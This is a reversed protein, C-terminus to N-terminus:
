PIHRVNKIAKFFLLHSKSILFPTALIVWIDNINADKIKCKSNLVDRLFLNIAMVVESTVTINIEKTTVAVLICQFQNTIVCTIHTYTSLQIQNEAVRHATAWWAGRGMPNGLLFVPSPQWKRSCPISSVWPNFRCRKHRNCQWASEKEM